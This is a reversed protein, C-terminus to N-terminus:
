TISKQFILAPNRMHKPRGGNSWKVLFINLRDTLPVSISFNAFAVREELEAKMSDAIEATCPRKMNIRAKKWLIMLIFPPYSLFNSFLLLRLYFTLYQPYYIQIEECKESLLLCM